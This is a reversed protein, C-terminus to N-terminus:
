GLLVALWAGALLAPGVPLLADRRVRRAALLGLVLAGHLLHPLVLGTLLADRGLWGLPLGLVAALKVDGFGLRSGPLLALLVHAAGAVAAGGLVGLLRAPTGALLAAASLGALALLGAVLVLPDPLRLCALDVLALVLGVAAVALLVPLAPDDGRAVALGVFVVAAVPPSLWAGRRLRAPTITFRRALSPVVVGVAGGLLAVGVLGAASM